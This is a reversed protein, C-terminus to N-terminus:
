EPPHAHWGLQADPNDELVEAVRREFARGRVPPLEERVSRALDGAYFVVFLEDEQRPGLLDAFYLEPDAGAHERLVQEWQDPTVVVTLVSGDVEVEVRGPGLERVDGESGLAALLLRWQAERDPLAQVARGAGAGDVHQQVQATAASMVRSAVEPAYAAPDAYGSLERWEREVPLRLSGQPSGANEAATLVFGVVLEAGHEGDVVEISAVTVDRGFGDYRDIGDDAQGYPDAPDIGGPHANTLIEFLKQAYATDEVGGDDAEPLCRASGM